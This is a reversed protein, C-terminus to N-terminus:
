LTTLTGGPVENWSVATITGLTVKDKGVVLNVTYLKGAEFTYSSSYQYSYDIGEVNLTIKFAATQPVVIAEYAYSYGTTLATETKMSITQVTAPTPLTVAGTGWNMTWDIQTNLLKPQTVVPKVPAGTGDFETGYRVNVRLKCLVHNFNVQMAKVDSKYYINKATSADNANPTVSSKAYLLDSAVDAGSATQDASVSGSLSTALTQNPKYPAYAVVDVAQTSNQWLMQGVKYSPETGTATLNQFYTDWATSNKKMKVNAFSYTSNAANTIFIGFEPLGDTTQGARSAINNVGAQIRIVNDSPLTGNQVDESNSCGAAMLAAAALIIINKTKM